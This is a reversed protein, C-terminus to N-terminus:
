RTENEVANAAFPTGPAAANGPPANALRPPVIEIVGIDAPPASDGRGFLRRWWSRKSEPVVATREPGWRNAPIITYEGPQMLPSVFVGDDDSIAATDSGQEDRLLVPFGQVPVGSPLVLRGRIPNGVPMAAGAAATEIEEADATHAPMGFAAAMLCAAMIMAYM